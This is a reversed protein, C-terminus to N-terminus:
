LCLVKLKGELVRPSPPQTRMPKPRVLPSTQTACGSPFAVPKFMTDSPSPPPTKPLAKKRREAELTTPRPSDARGRKAGTAEM